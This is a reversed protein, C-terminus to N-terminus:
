VLLKGAGAVRQHTIHINKENRLLPHTDPRRYVFYIHSLNKCNPFAQYPRMKLSIKGWNLQCLVDVLIRNASPLFLKSVKIKLFTRIRNAFTKPWFVAGGALVLRNKADSSITVSNLTAPIIATQFPAIKFDDLVLDNPGLNILVQTSEPSVSWTANQINLIEVRYNPADFLVYHEDDDLKLLNTSSDLALVQLAQEVHLARFEGEDNKRGYDYLRFTTDSPEQIELLDVGKRIAHVSGPPVRVADDKEVLVTNLLTGEKLQQMTTNPRFGHAIEGNQSDLIIWCEDKSDANDFLKATDPGPHVQVSLDDNADLFKILLPFRQLSIKTGVLHEGFLRVMEVLSKGEHEGSDVYSQGEDLDAVEWSEGIKSQSVPKGFKAGLKEGGWIKPVLLPGCRFPRLLDTM